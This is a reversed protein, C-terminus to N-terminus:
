TGRWSGWLGTSWCCRKVEVGFKHLFDLCSVFRVRDVEVVRGAWSHSRSRQVTHFDEVVVVVVVVGIWIRRAGKWVGGQELELLLLEM